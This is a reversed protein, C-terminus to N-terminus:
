AVRYYPINEIGLRRKAEESLTFETHRAVRVEVTPDHIKVVESQQSGAPLLKALCDVRVGDRYVFFGICLDEQQPAAIRAYAISGDRHPSVIRGTLSELEAQVRDRDGCVEEIMQEMVTIEERAEKLESTAQYLESRTKEARADVIEFEAHALQRKAEELESTKLLLASETSRVRQEAELAQQAISNLNESLAASMKDARDRVTHLNHIGAEVVQDARDKELRAHSLTLDAARAEGKAKAFTLEAELCEQKAVTLAELAAEKRQVITVPGSKESVLHEEAESLNRKAQDLADQADDLASLTFASEEEAEKLAVRMSAAHKRAETLDAEGSQELSGFHGPIHGEAVTISTHVAELREVETNLKGVEEELTTLKEQLGKEVSLHDKKLADITAQNSTKVQELESELSATKAVEAELDAKVTVVDGDLREKETTINQIEVDKTQLSENVEQLSERLDRERGEGDKVKTKEDKISKSMSKLVERDSDIKALIKKSPAALRVSPGLAALAILGLLVPASDFMSIPMWKSAFVLLIGVAVTAIFLFVGGFRPLFPKEYRRVIILTASGLLLGVPVLIQALPSLNSFYLATAAIAPLMLFSFLKFM